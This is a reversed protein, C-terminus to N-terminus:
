KLIKGIVNELAALVEKTAGKNLAIKIPDGGFKKAEALYRKATKELEKKLKGEEKLIKKDEKTLQGKEAAKKSLREKYEEPTEIGVGRIAKLVFPAAVIAEGILAEFHGVNGQLVFELVSFNFIEFYKILVYDAVTLLMVIVAGTAMNTYKNINFKAFLNKFLSVMSKGGKKIKSRKRDISKAYVGNVAARVRVTATEVAEQVIGEAGEM